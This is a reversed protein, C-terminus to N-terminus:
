HTIEWVVGCRDCSQNQGGASTTGYLNGNSDVSVGGVPNAGDSGGSFDHLDTFAWGQGSRSLKFVSGAGFAGDAYTTGYLNGASDISLTAFPGFQGTFSHLLTYTWGNGSRSLEFVTGGGGIGGWETTGYLNGAQDFIVSGVPNKGDTSNPFTYLTDLTWSGGNNALRYVTGNQNPGAMWTTGYVNGQADLTVGSYPTSGNAGDFDFISATTWGGMSRTLQYVNGLHNAGGELSTVYMKGTSDFVPDVYGIGGTEGELSVIAANWSCNSTRCVTQPPRLGYVSGCGFEGCDGNGGTATTGYLAGGPGIVPRGSPIWEPNSFQYLTSFIWAGNRYKMQYISGLYDETTTGYLNGAQDITVGAFPQYGDIGGTFSHIVTFTQARANSAFATLLLFVVSLMLFKPLTRM